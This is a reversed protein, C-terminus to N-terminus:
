AGPTVEIAEPAGKDPALAGIWVGVVVIAGGLILAPTLPEDALVAGLVGAVLPFLLFLYSTATATWRKIITLVLVFVVVSGIVVLYAIAAITEPRAPLTATEGAVLSLALLIVAGIAMGIANAMWPDGPPFRKVLVGSEAICAVTALLALLAALPVDLRTQDAFVLGVGGVAVLGGVLARLRFTELGQAVAFVLTTLPTLALVVQATAAPAFDLAYYIFAYSLGFNVVGFAIVGVATRGRPLPAGRAVAILLLIAAAVAFRLTAGWFPALEANSFRVAVANAGGFIAVFLFMALTSREPGSV